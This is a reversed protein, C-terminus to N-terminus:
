RGRSTKHLEPEYTGALLMQIELDMFCRSFGKRGVICHKPETVVLTSAVLEKVKGNRSPLEDGEDLLYSILAPYGGSLRDVEIKKSNM